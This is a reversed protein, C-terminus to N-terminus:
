ARSNSRSESSLKPSKTTSESRSTMRAIGLSTDLTKMVEGDSMRLQEFYILLKGFREVPFVRSDQQSIRQVIQAVSESSRNVCARSELRDARHSKSTAAFCM